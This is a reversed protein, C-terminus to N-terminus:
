ALSCCALAASSSADSASAASSAAPGEASASASSESASVLSLQALGTRSVPVYCIGAKSTVVHLSSAQEQQRARGTRWAPKHQNLARLLSKLGGDVHCVPLHSRPRKAPDPASTLTPGTCCALEARPVRCVDTQPGPRWAPCWQMISPTCHAASAQVIKVQLCACSSRWHRQAPLEPASQRPLAPRM